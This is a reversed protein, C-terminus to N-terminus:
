HRGRAVLFVTCGLGNMSLELLSRESWTGSDEREGAGESKYAASSTM